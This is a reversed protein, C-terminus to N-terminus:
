ENISLEKAERPLVEIKSLLADRCELLILFHM